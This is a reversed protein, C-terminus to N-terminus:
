DKGWVEIWLQKRRQAEKSTLKKLASDAFVEVYSNKKIKVMSVDIDRPSDQGFFLVQARNGSVSLVRGVRTMCM